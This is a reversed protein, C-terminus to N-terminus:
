GSRPPPDLGCGGGAPLPLVCGELLREEPAKELLFEEAPDRRRDGGLVLTRRRLPRDDRRVDRLQLRADRLPPEGQFHRNRCREEVFGLSAVPLCEAKVQAYRVNVPQSVPGDVLPPGIGEAVVGDCARPREPPPLQSSVVCGEFRLRSRCWQACSKGNARFGECVAAFLEEPDKLKAGSSLHGHEFEEQPVGDADGAIIRPEGLLLATFTM